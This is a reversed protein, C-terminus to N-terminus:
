EGVAHLNMPVPEDLLGTAIGAERASWNHLTGLEHLRNTMALARKYRDTRTM